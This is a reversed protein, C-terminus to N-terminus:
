TQSRIYRLLWARAFVWHREVTRESVDLEAAVERDTLGGFFKLVVVRAKEPDEIQFQELADEILLVKEDATAGSIELGDIDLRMQGGGRKLRTKSRLHDILIRRIIEAATAFFHVQNEWSQLNSGAIRLWAEHVVATPQLTQGPGLSALRHAALRRLDDYVKPFFDHAQAPSAQFGSPTPEESALNM